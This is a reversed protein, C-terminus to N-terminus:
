NLSKLWDTTIDIAPKADWQWYRDWFPTTIVHRFEFPARAKELSGAFQRIFFAPQELLSISLILTSVSPIVQEPSSGIEVMNSYLSKTIPYGIIHVVGDKKLKQMSNECAATKAESPTMESSKIHYFFQRIHAYLDLVPQWLILGRLEPHHDKCHLLAIGAGLRLGWIIYTQVGTRDTFYEIAATLDKSWDSVTFEGFEGESDGCGRFDFRFVPYGQQAFRRAAKVVVSHAMNKEEAFPHCFIIGTETEHSLEPLHLFGFLRINKPGPFFLPKEKM